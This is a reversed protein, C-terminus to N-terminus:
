SPLNDSILFVESFQKCLERRIPNIMDITLVIAKVKSLYLLLSYYNIESCMTLDYLLYTYNTSGVSM